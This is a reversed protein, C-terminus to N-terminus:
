LRMEKEVNNRRNHTDKRKKTNKNGEFVSKKVHVELKTKVTETTMLTQKEKRNMQNTTTTEEKRTEERETGNILRKQEFQLEKEKLM